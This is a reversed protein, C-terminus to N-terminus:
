LEDILYMIGKELDKVEKKKEKFLKQYKAREIRTKEIKGKHERLKKIVENRKM